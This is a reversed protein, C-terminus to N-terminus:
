FKQIKRREVREGVMMDDEREGREMTFINEEKKLGWIKNLCSRQALWLRVRQRLGRGVAGQHGGVGDEHHLGTGKWTLSIIAKSFIGQVNIFNCM